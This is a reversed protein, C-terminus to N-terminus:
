RTFELRYTLTDKAQLRTVALARGKTRGAATVQTTTAPVDSKVAFGAIAQGGGQLLPIFETFAGDHRVTVVIARDPADTFFRNEVPVDGSRTVVARWKEPPYIVPGARVTGAGIIIGDAAAQLRRMLLQDSACGLGKATTTGREAM